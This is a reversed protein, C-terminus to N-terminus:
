NRVAAAAHTAWNGGPSACAHCSMPIGRQEAVQAVHHGLHDLGPALGQAPQVVYNNRFTKLPWAINFAPDDSGMFFKGGPVLVMGKPRCDAVITAYEDAGLRAGLEEAPRNGAGAVDVM